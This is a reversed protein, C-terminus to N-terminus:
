LRWRESEGQLHLLFPFIMTKTQKIALKLLYFASGINKTIQDAIGAQCM